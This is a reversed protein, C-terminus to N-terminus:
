ETPISCAVKTGSDDDAVVTIRGKHLEITKRALIIELMSGYGVISGCNSSFIMWYDDIDDSSVAIGTDTVTVNISGGREASDEVTVSVAGGRPSVKIARSILQSLANKMLQRDIIVSANQSRIDTTLEISNDEARSALNNVIKDLFMALDTEEFKPSVNEHEINILHIIANVTEALHTTVNRLELCYGLQKENLDGFYMNYLIDVFGLITGLPTKFECAIKSVLTEKLSSIQAVVRNKEDIADCLVLSDTIDTFTMMNMGEPLSFYCYRMIKGNIFAITGSVSRRTAAANILIAFFDNAVESSAFADTHLEFFDRVHKGDSNSEESSTPQNIHLMHHLAKNTLKIKNDDGFIIIGDPLSRAMEAYISELSSIKRELDVRESFDEFVFMLGGDRIPLITVGMSKGDRLNISTYYPEILTSIVSMIKERYESASSSVVITENCILSNVIDSFRRFEHINAGDMHLLRVIASNAFVLTTDRDFIAVPVSINDFIEEIQKKYSAHEKQLTEYDTTDIAVWTSMGHKNCYIQTISLVRREGHIIAYEVFQKPLNRVQETPSCSYRRKPVLTTGNAIIAEQTSEVASAYQKNCYTIKMNRDEQWIYVPLTDILSALETADCTSCAAVQKDLLLTYLELDSEFILNLLFHEGLVAVTSRYERHKQTGDLLKDVATNLFQGFRKQMLRVFDLSNVLNGPSALATVM